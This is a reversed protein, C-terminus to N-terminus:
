DNETRYAKPVYRYYGDVMELEGKKPTAVSAPIVVEAERQVTELTPEQIVEEPKQEAPQEDEESAPESPAVDPEPQPEPEGSAEEQPKPDPPPSDLHTRQDFRVQRTGKSDMRINVGCQGLPCRPDDEDLVALHTYVIGRQVGDDIGDIMFGPSIGVPEYNAIKERISDPIKEEHFWFEGDVRQHEDNWRQHLTGIVDKASPVGDPPHGHTLMIIPQREAAMRLEEADKIEVVDGYSFEGPVAVIGKRKIAM